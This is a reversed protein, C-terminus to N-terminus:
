KFPCLQEITYPEKPYGDYVYDDLLYHTAAEGDEMAVDRAKMCADGPSHSIQFDEWFAQAMQAYISGPSGDLFKKLLTQYVVRADSDYGRILYMIMIRFRAYASLYLYENPDPVPPTPVPPTKIWGMIGWLIYERRYETWWELKDNFIVQQYLNLAQDYSKALVAYDADEVAQFRYYPPDFFKKSLFFNQGNWKFQETIRRYPASGNYDATLFVGNNLVIEIMGDHDVDWFAFTGGALVWLTDDEEGTLPDIFSFLSNFKGNGWEFLQYYDDAQTGTGILVLLEPIGNQNLDNIAVIKQQTGWANQDTELLTQYKGDQCGFIFLRTSSVVIEPVGDNTLDRYLIVHPHTIHEDRINEDAQLFADVGFNNLYDLFVSDDSGLSFQGSYELTPVQKGENQPCKAAPAPTGTRVSRVDFTPTPSLTPTSSFALETWERMPDFVPGAETSTRSPFLGADVTSTLASQTLIQDPTRATKLTPSPTSTAEVFQAPSSSATIAIIVVRTSGASECAALIMVGFILITIFLLLRRM